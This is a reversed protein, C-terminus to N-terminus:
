IDARGKGRAFIHCKRELELRIKAIVDDPGAITADRGVPLDDLVDIEYTDALKEALTAGAGPIDSLAIGRRLSVVMGNPASRKRAM